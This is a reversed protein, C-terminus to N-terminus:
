RWRSILSCRDLFIQRSRSIGSGHNLHTQKPGAIRRRLFNREHKVRAAAVEAVEAAAEAVEAAAVVAAPAADALAM